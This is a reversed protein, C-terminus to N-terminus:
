YAPLWRSKNHLYVVAVSQQRMIGFAAPVVIAYRDLAKFLIIPQMTVLLIAQTAM